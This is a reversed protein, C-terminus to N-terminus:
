EVKLMILIVHLTNKTARFGYRFRLFMLSLELSGFLVFTILLNVVLCVNVILKVIENIESLACPATYFICYELIQLSM